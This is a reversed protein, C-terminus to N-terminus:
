ITQLDPTKEKKDDDKAQKKYAELKETMQKEIFDLCDTKALLDPIVVKNFSYKPGDSIQVSPTSPLDTQKGGALYLPSQRDAPIM